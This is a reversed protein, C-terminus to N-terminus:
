LKTEAARSPDDDDRCTYVSAANGSAPRGSCIHRGVSVTSSTTWQCKKKEHVHAALGGCDIGGCAYAKELRSTRM